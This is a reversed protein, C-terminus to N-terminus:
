RRETAHAGAVAVGSSGDAPAGRRHMYVFTGLYSARRSPPPPLDVQLVTAAPAIWVSEVTARTSSAGAWGVGHGVAARAHSHAAPLPHELRLTSAVTSQTTVQLASQAESLPLSQCQERRYYEVTSLLVRRAAGHSFHAHSM